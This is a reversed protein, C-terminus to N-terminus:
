ESRLTKLPNAIAIRRSVKGILLFVIATLVLISFLMADIYSGIRYAFESLWSNAIYITFPISLLIGIVSYTLYQKGLMLAVEMTKGGHIKRIAVEKMRLSLNFWSVAGLGICATAIGILAFLEVMRSFRRENNYLADLHSDLFNFDFPIGPAVEAWSEKMTNIHEQINGPAIRIFLKTPNTYPMVIVMPGIKTHLTSYNFDKVVGVIVKNLNDLTVNTGIADELKLGIAQLAAQNLIISQISDNPFDQSFERGAILQIGMTEIVDHYSGYVAVSKFETESQNRQKLSSGGSRGDFAFKGKSVSIISSSKKLANRLQEYYKSLDEGLMRVVVVNEREYGLNRNSIFQLQKKVILTTSLMIGTLCIQVVILMQRPSFGYRNVILGEKLITLIKMRKIVLVPYAISLVAMVFIIIILLTLSLLGVQTQNFVPYGILEKFYSEATFLAIMAILASCVQIILGEVFLRSVIQANGSGIVKQVSINKARKILTALTLNTFNFLLIILVLISAGILGTITKSNGVKFISSVSPHNYQDSELYIKSVQQL